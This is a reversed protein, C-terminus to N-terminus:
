FRGGDMILTTYRGDTITRGEVITTYSVRHLLPVLSKYFNVRAGYVGILGHNSKTKRKVLSPGEM